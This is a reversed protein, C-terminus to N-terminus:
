KLIYPTEISGNGSAVMVNNSLYITPMINQNSSAKSPVYSASVIYYARSTSEAVGTLTWSSLAYGALYNYNDCSIDTIDNCNSDISAIFADSVYPLGFIQEESLKECEEENNIAINDESRKGICWKRPTAYVKFEDALYYENNEYSILSDKIRSVSYDNIGIYSEESVNYRNDWVIKLKKGGRVNILRMYGESDIDIVAWMTDGLKVLNNVNEGKYVYGDEKAYLGDGSIVINSKDTLVDSLKKSSYESGCELIPSYLYYNGNKTVVVKGSCNAGKPVIKSLDKMEKSSTLTEASVIVTGGNVKPLQSERSRFYEVAANKMKDEVKEFSLRKSSISSIILMIIIFIVVVVGSIVIMSLIKKDKM